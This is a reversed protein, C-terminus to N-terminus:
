AILWAQDIPLIHGYVPATSVFIVKRSRLATLGEDQPIIGYSYTSSL